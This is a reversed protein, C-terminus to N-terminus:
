MGYINSYKPCEYIPISEVHIPQCQMAQIFYQEAKDMDGISALFDAYRTNFNFIFSLFEYNDCRGLSIFDRNLQIKDVFRAEAASQIDEENELRQAM